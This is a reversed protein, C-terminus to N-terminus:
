KQRAGDSARKDQVGAADAVQIIVLVGRGGEKPGHNDVAAHEVQAAVAGQADGGDRHRLRREKKIIVAASTQARADGVSRRNRKVRGVPNPVSLGEGGSEGDTRVRVGAGALRDARQVEPGAGTIEVRCGAASSRRHCAKRSAVEDPALRRGQGKPAPQEIRSGVDGASVEETDDRSGSLLGGEDGGEDSTAARDVGLRDGDQRPRDALRRVGIRAIGVHTVGQRSVRGGDGPQPGQTEGRLIVSEGRLGPRGIVDAFGKAGAQGSHDAGRNVREDNIIGIRRSAAKIDRPGAGALRQRDRGSCQQERGGPCRGSVRGHTKRQAAEITADGDARRILVDDKDLIRGGGDAASEDGRGEARRKDRGGIDGLGATTVQNKGDGVRSATTGPLGRDVFADQLDVRQILDTPGRTAEDESSASEAKGAGEIRGRAGEANESAAGGEVRVAVIDGEGARETRAGARHGLVAEAHEREIRGARERAPGVDPCAGEREAGGSGDAAAFQGQGIVGHQREADAGASHVLRHALEAARAGARDQAAVGCDGDEGDILRRGGDIRAHNAAYTRVLIIEAEGLGADATQRKRARRQAVCTGGDHVTAGQIEGARGGGGEGGRSDGHRTAGGKIQGVGGSLGDVEARTDQRQASGARTAGHEAEFEAREGGIVTDARGGGGHDATLDQQVQGSETAGTDTIIIQEGGGAAQGGAAGSIGEATEAHGATGPRQGGGVGEDAEADSGERGIKVPGIRQAVAIPRRVTPERTIKRRVQSAGVGITEGSHVIPDDEAGVGGAARRDGGRKVAVEAELVQFEGGIGAADGRDADGRACDGRAREGEGGRRRGVADVDRGVGAGDGDAGRDDETRVLAPVNDACTDVARGEDHAAGDGASEIEFLGARADQSEGDRAASIGTRGGDGRADQLSTDGLTETVSGRMDDLSRTDQAQIVEVGGDTRQGARARHLVGARGVGPRESRATVVAARSEATRQLVTTREPEAQGLRSSARQGQAARVGIRTIDGDVAAGQVDGTRPRAVGSRADKDVPARVRRDADGIHATVHSREAVRAAIDRQTDRDIILGGARHVHGAVAAGSSIDGPRCARVAVEIERATRELRPISETVPYDAIQGSDGPRHDVDTAGTTQIM